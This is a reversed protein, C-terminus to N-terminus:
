QDPIRPEWGRRKIWSFISLTAGAHFGDEV